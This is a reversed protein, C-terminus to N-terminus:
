RLEMMAEARAKADLYIKTPPTLNAGLRAECEPVDGLHKADEKELEQIFRARESIDFAIGYASALKQAEVIRENRTHAFFNFWFALDRMGQTKGRKGGMRLQHVFPIRKGFALLHVEATWTDAFWYPFYDPFSRGLANRWKESLCVFTCNGPDNMEIWAWAPMNQEHAALFVNDWHQTLPFGDDPAFCYVDAPYLNAADNMRANLVKDRKGILPHVNDPLMWADQWSSLQALTIEDDEDLILPYHIEHSGTALADLSTIVAFLGAPRNRSPIPVTIKL